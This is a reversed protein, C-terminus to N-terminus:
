CRGSARFDRWRHWSFALSGRRRRRRRGGPAAYGGDLSLGMLDALLPVADEGFEGAKGLLRKLKELKLAATDDRLYGAAQQLQAIVPWLASNVHHPSCFYGIRFRPESRLRERLALVIRSKGIGAEGSLLVVQGESSKAMEWRDILLALENERGILPAVDAQRLAEFRGEATAEGLVRFARLPVEIGRFQQLGLDTITFWSGLLRRTSESIVVAGPEALQELRAALNPTAGM